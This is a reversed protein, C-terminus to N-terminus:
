GALFPNNRKEFGITTEPGHGPYVVCDDPLAFLKETISGILLDYDGTPLDTRGISMRFLVDGVIVFNQAKSYLCIHGDVHGPTYLVELASHGFRVMDGEKLFSEPGAPTEVHLGFVTGHDRSARHMALGSEHIRLGIAYKDIVYNNGLIHDIHSHTNVLTVPKLNYNRIYASLEDKEFDEYCGPDVIVCEGTEDFLLYTNEQFSNFVFRHTKIM